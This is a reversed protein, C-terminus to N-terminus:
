SATIIGQVTVPIPLGRTEPFGRPDLRPMRAVVKNVTIVGTTTDIDADVMWKKTGRSKTQIRTAGM